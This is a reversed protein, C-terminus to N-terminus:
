RRGSVSQGQVFFLNDLFSQALDEVRFGTRQNKHLGAQQLTTTSIENM